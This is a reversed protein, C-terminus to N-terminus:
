RGFLGVSAAVLHPHPHQFSNSRCFCSIHICSHVSSFVLLLFCSAARDRLSQSVPVVCRYVGELMCVCVCMGPVPTPEPTHFLSQIDHVTVGDLLEAKRKEAEAAAVHRPDPTNVFSTIDQVTVGQLLKAKRQEKGKQLEHKLHDVKKAQAAANRLAAQRRAHTVKWNARVKKRSSDWKNRMRRVWALHVRLRAITAAETAQALQQKLAKIQMIEQVELIKNQYARITPPVPTEAAKAAQLQSRLIELEGDWDVDDDRGDLQKLVKKVQRHARMWQSHRVTPNCKQDTKPCEAGQAVVAEAAALVTDQAKFIETWDEDNDSDGHVAHWKARLQAKASRLNLTLKRLNQAVEKAKQVKGVKTALDKAVTALKDKEALALKQKLVAIEADWDDDDWKAVAQKSQHVVTSPSVLGAIQLQAEAVKVKFGTITIAQAKAKQAGTIQATLSAVLASAAKDKKAQARQRKLTKLKLDWEDVTWEDVDDYVNPIRSSALAAMRVKAAAIQQTLKKVLEADDEAAALKSQMTAIQQAAAKAQKMKNLNSKLAAALALSKETVAVAHQVQLSKIAANWEKDHWQAVPKQAKVGMKHLAQQAEKLEKKSRLLKVATSQRARKSFHPQKSKYELDTLKRQVALVHQQAVYVAKPAATPKQAQAVFQVAASGSLVPVDAKKLAAAMVASRAKIQDTKAKVVDADFRGHFLFYRM